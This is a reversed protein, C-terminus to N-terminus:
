KCAAIKSNLKAKHEPSSYKLAQLYFARADNFKSRELLADGILAYGAEISYYPAIPSEIKELFQSKAQLYKKEDDFKQYHAAACAISYVVEDLARADKTRELLADYEADAKKRNGLADEIQALLRSGKAKNRIGPKSTEMLKNASSALALAETNKGEMNLVEALALQSRAIENKINGGIINVLRVSRRANAEAADMQGNAAQALALASLTKSLYFADQVSDTDAKQLDEESFTDLVKADHELLAIARSIKGQAKLSNIVVDRIDEYLPSAEGSAKRVIEFHKGGETDIRQYDGKALVRIFGNTREFLLNEKTKIENTNTAKTLINEEIEFMRETEEKLIVASQSKALTCDGEIEIAKDYMTKSLSLRGSKRLDAALALIEPYIRNVAQSREASKGAPLLEFAEKLDNAALDEHGILRAQKASAILKDFEATRSVSSCSM